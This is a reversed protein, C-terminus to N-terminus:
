VLLWHEMRELQAIRKLTSPAHRLLRSLSLAIVRTYKCITCLLTQAATRGAGSVVAGSGAEVLGGRRPVRANVCAAAPLRVSRKTSKPTMRGQSRAALIAVTTDGAAGDGNDHPSSSCQWQALTLALIAANCAASIMYM